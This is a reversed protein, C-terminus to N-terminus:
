HGKAYGRGEKVLEKKSLKGIMTKPLQSRFELHDPMEIPSLKDKLFALLEEATLSQGDRLKVFAKPAQGRYTDPVGIVTVEEVAPHLYVADEIVRPYVNYGGCLILDKIRDILFTYGQEDMYGVDGTHLRGNVIDHATAEPQNLYGAMVQPGIVCVEGKEGAGLAKDRDDMDHIEIITGPLPLGISGEKVSGLPNCAVVPSAESLGYGEVLKCGTLAEFTRKVEAPLPAGGSVCYKISSLDFGGIDPAANIATYMTPVGPFMTPRKENITKLVQKLEFRPLLILEAGAAIGTNMVVTMAFVHFLPLAGLFREAGDEMGHLWRRVQCANAVLNAHTLMAGKPSGTTGGTYQLVAIDTEPDIDATKIRGDGMTLENFTFHAADDRLGIVESRRFISFMISKAMPLIDSMPCVVIKELSTEATMAAVKGYIQKLDLTVMISTASDAIQHALERKAYLPNYNVVTGGAKLVAFYCIVYYPTNPLCLGVRVGRAVGLRRFGAAARDILDGIQRYSWVRGLFDICPNDPFRSLSKDFLAFLPVSPLPERWDVGPPYDALWPHDVVTM